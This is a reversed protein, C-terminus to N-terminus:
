CSTESFPVRINKIGLNAAISELSEPADNVANDQVERLPCDILKRGYETARHRQNCRGYKSNIADCCTCERCNEPMRNMGTVAVIM